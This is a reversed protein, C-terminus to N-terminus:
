SLVTRLAPVHLHPRAPSLFDSRSLVCQLVLSTVSSLAFIPTRKSRRSRLAYM